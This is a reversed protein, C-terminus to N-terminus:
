SAFEKLTTGVPEQILVCYGMSQLFKLDDATLGKRHFGECFDHATKNCPAYDIRGFQKKAEVILTHPDHMKPHEM